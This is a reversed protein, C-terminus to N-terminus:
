NACNQKRLRCSKIEETPTKRGMDKVSKTYILVNDSNHFEARFNLKIIVPVDDTKM